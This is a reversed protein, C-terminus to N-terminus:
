GRVRSVWESAAAVLFGTDSQTSLFRVGKRIMEIQREISRVGGCGAHIGNKRAAAILRDVAAIARPDDTKGPNGIDVLYDSTGLHVVDVGPVAAIAEVNSLGEATEIMCVVLSSANLAAITAAAGIPRFGFQVYSGSISRKGIPAFKCREVAIRAEEATNVDPFIIGMVGNDLLVPVDQDHVSRARVIPAVGVALATHALNVITEMDFVAHQTDIFLFDHGSTRAISVIDTSRGSRVIMGLAAEDAQLRVKVPNVLTNEAVPM